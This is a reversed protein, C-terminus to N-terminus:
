LPVLM